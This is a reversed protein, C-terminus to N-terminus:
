GMAPSGSPSAGTNQNAKRLRQRKKEKLHDPNM